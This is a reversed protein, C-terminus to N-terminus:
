IMLEYNKKRTFKQIFSQLFHLKVFMGKIMEVEYNKRRTQM